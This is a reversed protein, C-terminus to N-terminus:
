QGRLVQRLQVPAPASCVRGLLELADDVTGVIRNQARAVEIRIFGPDAKGAMGKEAAAAAGALDPLPHVPLAPDQRYRPAQSYLLSVVHRGLRRLKANIAAAHAQGGGGSNRVPEVERQYFGGVAEAFRALAKSAASLDHGDGLRRGYEAVYEQAAAAAARYDLPHVPLAAARWAALAYVRMDRLLNDRDAIELTDAETHWENNGGCGGVAYLGRAAREETPITSSLMFLTSVGLSSFSLDGAREPPSTTAPLGAADRVAWRALDETEAMCTLHHFVSAWRCGPSDCNLHVICDQYLDRAFRDAYWTSGAYRGTSHGPWWALRVSRPLHERNDWLVRALELLAANGVANDGIGVHWSDLHGHVLVFEQPWTTGAIEAVVLPCRYWGEELRTRVELQVPTGGSAAAAIAKLLRAGDSASVSAVAAAPRRDSTTLDPTGWVSTCIGEHIHEGPSVFVVAVAGQQQFALVKAPMPLGETVAVCGHLDPVAGGVGAFLDGIGTAQASPIYVAPGRRLGGPEHATSVSFSPTKAHARAEGADAPGGAWAVSTERPLSLYLEPWHVQHPVGLASLRGAIYEAAIREDESGSERVLSAFREVLAWPEGLSIDDLVRQERENM